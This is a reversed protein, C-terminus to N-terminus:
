IPYANRFFSFFLYHYIAEQDIAEPRKEAAILAKLESAFLFHQRSALLIPASEFRDRALFLNQRRPMGSQSAFDGASSSSM